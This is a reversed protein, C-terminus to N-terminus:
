DSRWIDLDRGLVTELRGIESQFESELRQRFLPDLSVPKKEKVNSRVAAMGPRLRFANLTRKLPHYIRKLPFKRYLLRQMLWSQPMAHEDIREFHTRSDTPLGLFVLTREYSAKIDAFFEEFVHVLLQERPVRRFLREMQSAFSCRERYLLLNPQHRLRRRATATMRKGAARADQLEWAKQFSNEDEYLQRVLFSHLSRAQDIPNRLMVIFRTDPNDRLINPVARESWLYLGSMEGLLQGDGANTFIERYAQRDKPRKDPRYEPMDDAYFNPEFDPMFIQPHTRLYTRLASKGSKSAGLIFFDLHFEALKQGTIIQM